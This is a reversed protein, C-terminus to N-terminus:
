VGGTTALTGFRLDVVGNAHSASSPVPHCEACAVARTSSDALASSM